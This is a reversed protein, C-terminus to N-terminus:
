LTLQEGRRHTYIGRGDGEILIVTHFSRRYM